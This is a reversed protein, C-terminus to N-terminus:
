NNIHTENTLPSKQEESYNDNHTSTNTKRKRPGSTVIEIKSTSNKSVFMTIKPQVKKVSKIAPDPTLKIRKLIHIFEKDDNYMVSEINM